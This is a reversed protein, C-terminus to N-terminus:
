KQPKADLGFGTDTKYPAVCAAEGALDDPPVRYPRLPVAIPVAPVDPSQHSLELVREVMMCQLVNDLRWIHGLTVKDPDPEATTEPWRGGAAKRARVQDDIKSKLDNHCSYALELLNRVSVPEDGHPQQYKLLYSRCDLSVGQPVLPPIPTAFLSDVAIQLTASLIAHQQEWTKNDAYFRSVTDDLEQGELRRAIADDMDYASLFKEDILKDLDQLAAQATAADKDIKETQTQYEWSRWQFYASVVTGVIGTALIASLATRLWSAAQAAAAEKVDSKAGAQSGTETKADSEADPM